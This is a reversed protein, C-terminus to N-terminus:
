ISLTPHVLKSLLVKKEDGATATGTSEGPSPISGNLKKIFEDREALTKETAALKDALEGKEKQVREFHRALVHSNALSRLIQGPTMPEGNLRAARDILGEVESRLAPDNKFIEQSGELETLIAGKERKLGDIYDAQAKEMATKQQKEIEGYTRDADALEALRQNDLEEARSWLGAFRIQSPRDLSDHIESMRTTDWRSLVTQIEPAEVGAQKMMAAMADVQQKIGDNYKRQFDPHRALAAVRLHADLEQARKEAATLKEEFEKPVPNKRFTEYETRLKGLEEEKAKIAAEREAALKDAAEKSERLKAFNMEQETPKKEPESKVPEAKTSEVKAVPEAKTEPAKVPAPSDKPTVTPRLLSSVLAKKDPAETKVETPPAEAIATSM